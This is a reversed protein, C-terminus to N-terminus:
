FAPVLNGGGSNASTTGAIAGHEARHFRESTAVGAALAFLGSLVGYIVLRSCWKSLAAQEAPRKWWGRSHM